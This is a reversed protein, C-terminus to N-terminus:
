MGRWSWPSHLFLSLLFSPSPSIIPTTFRTMDSRQRYDKWPKGNRLTAKLLRWWRASGVEGAEEQVVKGKVKLTGDGEGIDEMKKAKAYVKGKM